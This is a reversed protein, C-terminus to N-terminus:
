IVLFKLYVTNLKIYLFLRYVPDMKLIKDVLQFSM